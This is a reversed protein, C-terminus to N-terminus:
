AGGGPKQRCEECLAYGCSLAGASEPVLTGPKGCMMCPYGKNEAWDRNQCDAGPCRKLGLGFAKNLVQLAEHTRECSTQSEADCSFRGVYEKILYEVADKATM